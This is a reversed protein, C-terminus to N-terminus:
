RVRPGLSEAIRQLGQMPVEGVVTVLRDGVIRRYMGTAGSNAHGSLGAALSGSAAEIFVSVNALGDSLVAHVAPAEGYRVSRKLLSVNRFGPPLKRFGWEMEEPRLDVGRADIMRWEGNILSRPKLKEHDVPGSVQLELFSFQEILASRENYLSARLLLGTAIDIWLQHGYRMDDRPELVVQQAERGAILGLGGLRIHYFEALAAPKSILRGPQRGPMLRDTVVTREQPLFCRLEENHRIVERPVGSLTEVREHEGSADVLHVVSSTETRGQSQYVFVGSYSLARASQNMRQLWLYAEEALAGSVMLSLLLLATLRIFIM